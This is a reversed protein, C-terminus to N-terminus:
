NECPLKKLEGNKIQICYLEGTETDTLKLEEPAKEESYKEHPNVFAIIKGTKDYDGSFSELAMGIVRGGGTAKKAVGPTTSSTLRDGVEINGDETSVKTPVRGILAVTGGAEDLGSGLTIAPDTTIVGVLNQDYAKTSKSIIKGESVSVLDGPQPCNNEEECDPDLPFKEAVDAEDRRPTLVPKWTGVGRDDSLLGYGEEASVPMRFGLMRVTGSVDLTQTPSTGIGIRSASQRIVSDSLRHNDRWLPIRGVEGRGEEVQATGELIEEPDIEAGEMSAMIESLCVGGEMDTCVDGEAQIDDGVHLGYQPNDIGVGLRGLDDITMAVGNFSDEVSSDTFGAPGFKALRNQTGTHATDCNGASLCVEGSIDPLSYDRDDTLRGVSFSGMFDEDAVSISPSILEEGRLQGEVVTESRITLFPDTFLHRPLPEETQASLGGALFFFIFIATFLVSVLVKFNLDDLKLFKM